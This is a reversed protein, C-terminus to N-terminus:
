TNRAQRAAEVFGQERLNRDWFEMFRKLDAVLGHHFV